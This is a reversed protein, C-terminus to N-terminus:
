HRRRSGVDLRRSRRGPGRGARPDPDEADPELRVPRLELAQALADLAVLPADLVADGPEPGVDHRGPEDVRRLARALRAVAERAALDVEDQAV